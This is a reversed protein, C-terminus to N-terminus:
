DDNAGLYMLKDDILEIAHYTATILNEIREVDEQFERIHADVYAKKLKETVKGDIISDWDSRLWLKESEYKVTSKADILNDNQTNIAEFLGKKEEILAEIEKTDM